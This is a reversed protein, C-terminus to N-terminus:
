SIDKKLQTAIVKSGAFLLIFIFLLLLTALLNGLNLGEPKTIYDGLTAGIPHITIMALWFCITKSVKSFKTLLAILTLIIILFISGGSFGLVTENAILDGIATGFTSSILLAMWYFFEIKKSVVQNSFSGSKLLYLVGFVVLLPFIIMVCSLSYGLLLTRSIYDSITTGATSATTIVVWYLLSNQSKSFLEILLFVVFLMILVLSSNAYGLHFSTSILDGMTEGITTASMLLAWYVLNIAPLKKAVIEIKSM